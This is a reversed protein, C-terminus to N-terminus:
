INFSKECDSTEKINPNSFVFKRSLKYELLLGIYDVETGLLIQWAEQEIFVRIGDQVEEDSDNKEKM